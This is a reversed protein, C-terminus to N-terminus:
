DFSQNWSEDSLDEKIFQNKQCCIGSLRIWVHKKPKMFKGVPKYRWNRM